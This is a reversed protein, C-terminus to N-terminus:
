YMMLLASQKRRLVEFSIKEIIIANKKVSNISIKDMLVELDNIKKNIKDDLSIKDVSLNNSNQTETAAEQPLESWTGDKEDYDDDDYGQISEDGQKDDTDCIFSNEENLTDIFKEKDTPYYKAIEYLIKEFADIRNNTNIERWMFEDIYSKLHVRACGNMQKFKEKAQRWLGEIKNTHAGTNPDIFNYSHNVTLHNLSKFEKIKSYSSWSDSIITTGTEVRDYIIELLTKAKRNPVIQVYCKGDTGREVLGFMWIQKVAKSISLQICWYKMIEIILM